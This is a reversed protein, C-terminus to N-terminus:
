PCLFAEKGNLFSPIFPLKINSIKTGTIGLFFLVSGREGIGVYDWEGGRM